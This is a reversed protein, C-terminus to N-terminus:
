GIGALAINKIQFTTKGFRLKPRGNGARAIYVIIAKVIKDDAGRFTTTRIIGAATIHQKTMAASKCVPIKRHVRQVTRITKYNLSM